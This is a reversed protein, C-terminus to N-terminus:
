TNEALYASQFFVIKFSFQLLPPGRVMYDRNRDWTLRKSILPPCVPVLFHKDGFLKTEKTLIM